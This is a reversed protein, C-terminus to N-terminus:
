HTGQLQWIDAVGGADGLMRVGVTSNSPRVSATVSTVNDAILVVLSHDVIIHLHHSAADNLPGCRSATAGQRTGNICVVRRGPLVVIDTAEGSDSELVRVGFEGRSSRSTFRAFIELQQGASPVSSGVGDLRWHRRRLARIEGSFAQLLRVGGGTEDLTLDRPLSMANLAGSVWGFAVVRQGVGLLRTMGMRGGSPNPKSANLAAVGVGTGAGAGAALTFEGWDLMGQKMAVFPSGNAQKGIWYETSGRAYYPNNLLLKYGTGPMRAFAMTVLEHAETNTGNTGFVTRNSRFMPQALRRWPGLLSPAAWLDVQGGAGCPVARTTSNCGDVAVGVYWQGDDDVFPQFPDYPLMRYYSVDFLPVPAGWTTAAADSACRLVLPADWPRGAESSGRLGACISGNNPNIVAFGSPWDDPGIGVGTWHVLDLSTAHHWGAGCLQWVHHTGSPDTVAAAIDRSGGGADNICPPAYHIRPRLPPPATADSLASTATFVALLLALLLM